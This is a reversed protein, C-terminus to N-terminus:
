SCTVFSIVTEGLAFTPCHQAKDSAMKFHFSHPQLLNLRM